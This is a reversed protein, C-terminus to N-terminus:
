TRGFIEPDGENGEDGKEGSSSKAHQDMKNEKNFESFLFLYYSLMHQCVVHSVAYERNLWEKDAKTLKLKLMEMHPM